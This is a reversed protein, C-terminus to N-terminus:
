LTEHTDGLWNINQRLQIPTIQYVKRVDRKWLELNINKQKAYKQIMFRIYTDSYEFNVLQDDSLHTVSFIDYHEYGDRRRSPYCQIDQVVSDSPIDFALAKEGGSKVDFWDYVKNYCFNKDFELELGYVSDLSFLDINEYFITYRKESKTFVKIVDPDIRISKIKGSFPVLGMDYAEYALSAWLEEKSTSLDPLLEYSNVVPFSNLLLNTKNKIAFRVANITNGIIM